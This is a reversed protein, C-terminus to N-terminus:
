AKWIKSKDQLSTSSDLLKMRVLSPYTTELANARIL